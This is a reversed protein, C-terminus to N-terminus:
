AGRSVGGLRAGDRRLGHPGRGLGGESECAPVPQGQGGALAGIGARAATGIAKLRAGGKGLVIGKQSDREVLIQQHITTVGGKEEWRETEVTSAYPLEDRLQLYLQERTLELAMLRTTADTLQDAPFHWPGEPLATALKAKLDAVGDGTLRRDHVDRRVRGECAGRGRAAAATEKNAIDVKNLVLWKPEPRRALNALM